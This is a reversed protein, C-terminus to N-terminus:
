ENSVPFNSTLCLHLNATSLPGFKRRVIRVFRLKIQSLKLLNSFIRIILKWETNITCVSFISYIYTTSSLEVIFLFSFVFQLFKSISNWYILQIWYFNLLLFLLTYERFSFYSWVNSDIYVSVVIKKWKPSYAIRNNIEYWQM